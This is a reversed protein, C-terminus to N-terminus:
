NAKNTRITRAFRKYQAEVEIVVKMWEVEFGGDEWPAIDKRLKDQQNRSKYTKINCMADHRFKASWIEIGLRTKIEVLRVGARSNVDGHGLGAVM